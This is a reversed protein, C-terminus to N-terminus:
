APVFKSCFSTRKLIEMMLGILNTICNDFQATMSNYATIGLDCKKGAADLGVGRRWGGM